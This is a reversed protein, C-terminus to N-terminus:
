IDYIIGISFGKLIRFRLVKVFILMNCMTNKHLKFINNFIFFIYIIIVKWASPPVNGELYFAFRNLFINLPKGMCVHYFGGFEYFKNYLLQLFIYIDHKVGMSNNFFKCVKEFIMMRDYLLIFPERHIFHRGLTTRLSNHHSEVFMTVYEVCDIVYGTLILYLKNIYM